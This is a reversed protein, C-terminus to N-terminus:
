SVSMFSHVLHLVAQESSASKQLAQPDASPVGVGVVAADGSAGVERGDTGARVGVVPVAAAAPDAGDIATGAVRPKSAAVMARVMAELASVSWFFRRASTS